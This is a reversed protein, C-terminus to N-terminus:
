AGMQSRARLAAQAGCHEHRTLGAWSRWLNERRITDRQRVIARNFGNSCPRALSTLLSCVTVAVFWVVELLLCRPSDGTPKAVSKRKDAAMTNAADPAPLIDVVGRLQSREGTDAGPAVTGTYRDPRELQHSPRRALSAASARAASMIRQDDDRLGRSAILKVSAAPSMAASTMTIQVHDRDVILAKWPRGDRSFRGASEGPRIARFCM